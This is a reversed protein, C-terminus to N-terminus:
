LIRLDPSYGTAKSTNSLWAVVLAMIIQTIETTVMARTNDLGLSSSLVMGPDMARPCGPDSNVDTAGTAILPQTAARPRIMNPDSLWAATLAM